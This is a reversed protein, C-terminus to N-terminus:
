MFRGPDPTLGFIQHRFHSFNCFCITSIVVSSPNEVLCEKQIGFVEHTRCVLLISM